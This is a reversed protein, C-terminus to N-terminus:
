LVQWSVMACWVGLVLVLACLWVQMDFCFPESRRQKGRFASKLGGCIRGYSISLPKFKRWILEISEYAEYTFCIIVSHSGSDAM